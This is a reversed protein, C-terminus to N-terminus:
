YRTNFRQAIDRTLELHQRQDEDIPVINTRYLLINDAMLIPYTFLATSVFEEEAIREKFQTMRGLQKHGTVSSLLWAAETHTTVHSQIFVTSRKPDLGTAFLM